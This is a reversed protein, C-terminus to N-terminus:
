CLIKFFNVHIGFIWPSSIILIRLLSLIWMISTEKTELETHCQTDSHSPHLTSPIGTSADQTFQSVTPGPARM